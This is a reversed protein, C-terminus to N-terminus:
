QLIFAVITAIAIEAEVKVVSHFESCVVLVVISMAAYVAGWIATATPPVVSTEPRTQRAVAITIM